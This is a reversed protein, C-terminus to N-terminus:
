FVAEWLKEFALGDPTTVGALLAATLFGWSGIFLLEYWRTVKVFVCAGIIGLLILWVVVMWPM